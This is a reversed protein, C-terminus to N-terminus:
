SSCLVAVLAETTSDDRPTDTNQACNEFISLPVFFWKALHEWEGNATRVDTSILYSPIVTVLLMAMIM